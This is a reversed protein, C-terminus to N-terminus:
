WTAHCFLFAPQSRDVMDASTLSEGDLLKLTFDPIRHGAETGVPALPALSPAGAQASPKETAAPQPSSSGACGIALILGVGSLGLLVSIWRHTLYRM